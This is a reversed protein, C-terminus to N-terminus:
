YHGPPHQPAIGGVRIDRVLARPPTPPSHGGGKTGRREKPLPTKLPPFGKLNEKVDKKLTIWM